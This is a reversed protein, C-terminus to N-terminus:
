GVRTGGRVTAHEALDQFSARELLARWVAASPHRQSWSYLGQEERRAHARLRQVFTEVAELRLAHLDLSVGLDLLARRIGAHESRIAAAEEPDERALEPLLVVEEFEMHHLLEEEFRSWECRLTVPDGGATQTLLAEFLRELRRHHESLSPSRGEAMEHGKM